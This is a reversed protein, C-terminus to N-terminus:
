KVPKSRPAVKSLIWESNFHVPMANTNYIRGGYGLCNYYQDIAEVLSLKDKWPATAKLYELLLIHDKFEISDDTPTSGGGSEGDDSGSKKGSGSSMSVYVDAEAGASAKSLRLRDWLRVFFAGQAGQIKLKRQEQHRTRYKIMNSKIEDDIKPCKALHKEIVTTATTLSEISSFFYKGEGFLGFCHRCVLGPYGVAVRRNKKGVDDHTARCVIVQDLVLEVFDTLVERDSPQLIGKLDDTVVGGQTTEESVPQPTKTKLQMLLPVIFPPVKAEADYHEQPVNFSEDFLNSHNIAMFNTLERVVGLTDDVQQVTLDSQQLMSPMVLLLRMLYECGYVDCSRQNGTVRYRDQEEKYMLRPALEDFCTSIQNVVEEVRKQGEKDEDLSAQLSFFFQTLAETVSLASEDPEANEDVSATNVFLRKIRKPIYGLGLNKTQNALKARQKAKELKALKTHSGGRAKNRGPPLYTVGSQDDGVEIKWGAQRLLPWMLGLFFPSSHPEYEAGWITGKIPLSNPIEAYQEMKEPRGELKLAQIAPDEAATKAAECLKSKIDTLNVYATNKAVHAVGCLAVTQVIALVQREIYWRADISAGGEKMDEVSQMLIENEKSPVRTALVRWDDKVPPRCAPEDCLDMADLYMQSSSTAMVEDMVPFANSSHLAGKRYTLVLDTFKSAEAPGEHNVVSRVKTAAATVLLCLDQVLVDDTCLWGLETTFAALKDVTSRFLREAMPCWIQRTAAFGGFENSSFETLIERGAEQMLATRITSKWNPHERLSNVLDNTWLPTIAVPPMVVSMVGGANKQLTKQLQENIRLALWHMRRRSIAIKTAHATDHKLTEEEPKTSTKKFIKQVEGYITVGVEESLYDLLSRLDQLSLKSIEEQLWRRRRVDFGKKDSGSSPPQSPLFRLEVTQGMEIPKTLHLFFKKYGSAGDKEFVNYSPSQISSRSELPERNVEAAGGETSSRPKSRENGDPESNTSSDPSELKTTEEDISNADTVFKLLESKLTDSGDVLLCLTFDTAVPFAIKKLLSMGYMGQLPCPKVGYKGLEIVGLGPLLTSFPDNRLEVPNELAETVDELVPLDASLSVGPLITHELSGTNWKEVSGLYTLHLGTKALKTPSSKRVSLEFV